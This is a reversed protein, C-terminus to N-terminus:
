SRRRELEKECDNRLKLLWDSMKQLEEDSLEYQPKAEVRGKIYEYAITDKFPIHIKM